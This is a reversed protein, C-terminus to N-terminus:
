SETQFTRLFEALFSENARMASSSADHGKQAALRVVRPKPSNEDDQEKQYNDRIPKFDKEPDCEDNNDHWPEYSAAFESPDM